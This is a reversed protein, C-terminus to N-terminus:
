IKYVGVEIFDKLFDQNIKFEKSFIKKLKGQTIDNKIFYGLIGGDVDGVQARVKQNNISNLLSKPLLSGNIQYKADDKSLDNNTLSRYRNIVFTYPQICSLGFHSFIGIERDSSDLGNLFFRQRTKQSFKPQAYYENGKIFESTYDAFAENMFDGTLVIYKKKDFNQSIHEAIYYNLVACHVNYDRWDQSARLIKSLDTIIRESNIYIPNFNVRLKKGIDKAYLFDHSKSYEKYNSKKNDLVATVVDIHDFEQSALFTILTSDLGGSLCIIPKKKIKHKLYKFFSNLINKVNNIEFKSNITLAKNKNHIIKENDIILYGGRPVSYIDKTKFKEYIDLFNNSVYLSSNNIDHFYFLKRAGINDRALFIQGEKLNLAFAYSGNLNEQNILFKYIEKKSNIFEGLETIAIDILHELNNTIHILKM